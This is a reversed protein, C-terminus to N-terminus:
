ALRFRLADNEAHLRRTRQVLQGIRAALQDLDQLMIPARAAYHASDYVMRTNRTYNRMRISADM